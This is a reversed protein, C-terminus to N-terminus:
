TQLPPTKKYYKEYKIKKRSLCPIKNSYYIKALLKISEKKGYKIIYIPNPSTNNIKTKHISGKVELNCIIRDRLWLIHKKSASIFTTFIREYVYKINKKTNYRDTYTTISGDGDLHGRLFDVFYKDPVNIEGITLSKAPSLGIKILWDYLQVNTIQIRYVESTKNRTFGIINKLKLIRIVNGISEIDNSTFIIHRGDSSLCGDTVLLGVVYALEASLVFSQVRKPKYRKINNMTGFTPSSGVHSQERLM